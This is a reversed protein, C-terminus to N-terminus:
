VSEGVLIYYKVGMIGLKKRKEGLRSKGNCM